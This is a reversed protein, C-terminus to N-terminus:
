EEFDKNRKMDEEILKRLYVARPLRKKKSIWDLYHGIRPSIFFNFRVDIKDTIEDLGYKIVSEIKDITYDTLILKDSDIGQLIGPERDQQYLALVPKDKDLALTLEHGINITSPYSIECVVADCSSLWKNLKHYYEKREALTQVELDKVERALIHEYQVVHGEKELFKVIREYLKSNINENHLSGTFYIKM